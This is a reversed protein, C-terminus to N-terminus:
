RGLPQIVVSERARRVYIELGEDIGRVSRRGNLFSKIKSPDALFKHAYSKREDEFSLRSMSRTQEKVMTALELISHSRGTVINYDQGQVADFNEALTTLTESVDDILTFDMSQQGGHITIGEGSIAQRVFTPVVRETRDRMSGFVNSLRTIVYRLGNARGAEMLMEEAALKTRGYVSKPQKPTEERVPFVKPDGYVERSSAFILAKGQQSAVKIVNRAGHLNVAVCKMPDREGDEVRSVAALHVTLDSFRAAEFVTWYDLIDGIIKRAGSDRTNGDFRLDLSTVSHGRNAFSEALHSGIFGNGGTILVNM